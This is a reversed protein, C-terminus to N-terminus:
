SNAQAALPEQGARMPTIIVENIFAPYTQGNRRITDRRGFSLPESLISDGTIQPQSIGQVTGDGPDLLIVRMKITQGAYVDGEPLEVLLRPPERSAAAGPATVILRAEPVTVTKSYVTVPFSPVTFAGTSTAPAHFIIT